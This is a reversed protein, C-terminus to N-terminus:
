SEKIGEDLLSQFYDEITTYLTVLVDADQKKLTMMREIMQSLLDLVESNTSITFLEVLITCSNQVTSSQILLNLDLLLFLKLLYLLCEENAKYTTLLTIFSPSFSMSISDLISSVPDPLSYSITPFDKKTGLIYCHSISPFTSPPLTYLHLLHYFFVM